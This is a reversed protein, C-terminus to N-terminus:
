TEGPINDMEPKKFKPATFSINGITPNIGIEGPTWNQPNNNAMMWSNRDIFSFKVEAVALRWAQPKLFHADVSL